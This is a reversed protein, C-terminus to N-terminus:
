VLRLYPPRSQAKSPARSTKPRPEQSRPKSAPAEAEKASAATAVEPPSETEVLRPGAKPRLSAESFDVREAAGSAVDALAAAANGDVPSNDSGSNDIKPQLATVQPEREAGEASEDEVAKVARLHSRKAAVPEADAAQQAAARQELVEAPVDERWVRGGGNQGILAFIASWPMRCFQRQRNFSLTCTIGEDDVDLDPIAVAMDFGIQLVLQAQNVFGQPVIVGERRPDLHIFVSSRELLQLAVTKKSSSASMRYWYGGRSGFVLRRM